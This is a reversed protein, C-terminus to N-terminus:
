FIRVARVASTADKLVPFVDGGDIGALIQGLAKENNEETSSWYFWDKLETGGNAVATSDIFHNNNYILTLEQISPLYWDGFSKGGESIQLEACIRAAYTNGDDGIASQSAIIIASNMEGSYPGQGNAQTNGYTGAHWRIGSGGDQDYKACALGHEGSEDVWFIIGGQAFDGIKYQRIALTGDSQRVINASPGNVTDIRTVKVQGEVELNQAYVYLYSIIGIFILLGKIIMNKKTTFPKNLKPLSM